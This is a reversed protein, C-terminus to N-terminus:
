GAAPEEEVPALFVNDNLDGLPVDTNAAIVEALTNRYDIGYALRIAVLGPDNRYFFRDGDRLRRFQETWIARQLEGMEADPAHAEAVMGTFADLRDVSGYVAALRAALTTRRELDVPSSEAEESGLPIDRGGPGVLRVVELSDPDDVEAGPTLLPDAPFEETSEGTIDTFSRAPELGYAERMENYSPMGHDRGREVDLAGLDLVGQYCDPLEAGDLCRPNGPVPVQFLVSRLQNDIMEDNNYQAELGIGQLLPGLRLSEVLDPNFFAVNLPVAIGVESGDASTEVELGAQEFAALQEAPYRGADTELEIEGHIMSHARYGVTAFENSLSPNVDPRYGRYRGVRVGVAPLFEHYTIYQQEAIVVRRAIQFKQEAPLAHPLLSVIRNHERAFLTQTALLAINENARVDGAVAARYPQGRLAGDVEMPPAADGDGRSDRRPLLGGPLLLEADNNSIDGDVPGQRLWELREESGGYVAWADIYSSITNVQERPSDVGTGPAVASRTFPIEGVTNTFEELPDDGDFAIGQETGAGDRLGFTHDLFQGWTFVWQSVGRESFLNQHSDNFVRNSVYRSDPGPVPEGAGDAYRAPAVRSYNTGAAGWDPHRRNNGTGDLSRIPLERVRGAIWRDDWPWDVPRRASIGESTPTPRGPLLSGADTGSLVLTTVALLM